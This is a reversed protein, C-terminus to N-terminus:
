PEAAPEPPKRSLLRDLTLRDTRALFVLACMVLLALDLVVHGWSAPEYSTIGCGCDEINLGRLLAQAIAATFVAYLGGCVVASARMALGLVLFGGFVLEVRPIAWVSPNLAFAPLIRYAKIAWWFDTPHAMKDFSTYVLLGGAIARWLLVSLANLFV